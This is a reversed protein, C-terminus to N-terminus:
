TRLPWTTWNECFISLFAARMGNHEEDDHVGGFLGGEGEDGTATAGSANREGVPDPAGTATGINAVRHCEPLV